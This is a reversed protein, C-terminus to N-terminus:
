PVLSGTAAGGTIAPLPPPGGVRFLHPFNERLKDFILQQALECNGVISVRSMSGMQDIRIDSQSNSRIANITEGRKGILAGIQSTPMDLYLRPRAPAPAEEHSPLSLDRGDKVAKDDRRRSRRSSSRSRKRDRRSRSQSRSHRQSHGGAERSGSRRRRDRDRDRERDRDYSTVRRSRSKSRDDGRRDDRCKSRHDRSRSDKRKGRSSSSRGDGGSDDRCRTARCSRSRRSDKSRHGSRSRM